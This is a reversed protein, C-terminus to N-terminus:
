ESEISFYSYPQLLALRIFKCGNTQRWSSRGSQLATWIARFRKNSVRSRWSNQSSSEKIFPELSAATTITSNHKQGCHYQFVCRRSARIFFSSWFSRKSLMAIIYKSASYSQTPRLKGASTARPLQQPEQYSCVLQYPEQIGLKELSTSRDGNSLDGGWCELHWSESWLERWVSRTGHFISHRENDDGNQRTTGGFSGSKQKSRLWGIQYIWWQQSSYKWGTSLILVSTLSFLSSFVILWFSSVNM